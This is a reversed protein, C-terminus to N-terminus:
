SIILSQKIHAILVKIKGRGSLVIGDVDLPSWSESFVIEDFDNFEM